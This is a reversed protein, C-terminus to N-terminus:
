RETEEEPVDELVAVATTQPDSDSGHRSGGRGGREGRGGGGDRRSWYKTDPWLFADDGSAGFDEPRLKSLVVLKLAPLLGASAGDVLGTATPDDMAEMSDSLM